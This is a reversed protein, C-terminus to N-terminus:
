SPSATKCINEGNNQKSCSFINFFKKLFSYVFVIFFLSSSVFFLMQFKLFAKVPVFGRVTLRYLAPIHILRDEKRIMTYFFFLNGTVAPRNLLLDCFIDFHLLFMLSVSVQPEHAVKKNKGYKSTTQSRNSFLHM